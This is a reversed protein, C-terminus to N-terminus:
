RWRYSILLGRSLSGGKGAAALDDTRIEALQEKSEAARWGEPVCAGRSPIRVGPPNSCKRARAAKKRLGTMDTM